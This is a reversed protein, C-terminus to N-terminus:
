RVSCSQAPSLTTLALLAICYTSGDLETHTVEVPLLQVDVGWGREHWTVARIAPQADVRVDTVDALWPDDGFVASKLERHVFTNDQIRKVLAHFRSTEIYYTLM